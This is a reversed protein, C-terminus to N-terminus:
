PIALDRQAALSSTYATSRFFNCPPIISSIPTHNAVLNPSFPIFFPTYSHILIWIPHNFSWNEHKVFFLTTVHINHRPNSSHVQPCVWALLVLVCLFPEGFAKLLSYVFIFNDRVPFLLFVFSYDWTATSPYVAPPAPLSAPLFPNRPTCCSSILHVRIFSPPYPPPLWPSSVPLECYEPTRPFAPDSSSPPCQSVLSSVRLLFRLSCFYVFLWCCFVLSLIELNSLLAKLRFWETTVASSSLVNRGRNSTRTLGQLCLQHPAPTASWSLLALWDVQMNGPSHLCLLPRPLPREWLLTFTFAVYHIVNENLYLGWHAEIYSQCFIMNLNWNEGLNNWRLKVGSSLVIWSSKFQHFVNGSGM